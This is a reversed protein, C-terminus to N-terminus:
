FTAALADADEKARRLLAPVDMGDIDLGEATVTDLRPVGLMALNVRLFQAALDAQQAPGHAYIGGKTNIFVARRARCLGIAEGRDGYRFTLGTVCIHEIYTHLAAPFTGEWFPAAIVIVDAQAFRRAEAFMPDDWAQAAIRADRAALTLTTLPHLGLADLDAVSVEADPRRKKLQALFHDAIALTRSQTSRICGNVFLVKM